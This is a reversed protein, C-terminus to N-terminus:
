HCSLNGRTNTPKGHIGPSPYQNVSAFVEERATTPCNLLESFYERMRLVIAPKETLMQSGEADTIPAVATKQAKQRRMTSNGTEQM